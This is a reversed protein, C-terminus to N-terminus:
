KRQYRQPHDMETQVTGQPWPFTRLLSIGDLGEGGDGGGGGGFTGDTERAESLM